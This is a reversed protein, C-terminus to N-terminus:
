AVLAAMSQRAYEFDAEASRADAAAAARGYRVRGWLDVEWTLTLVAGQLGSGDGSMKGGGRALLDVSPYLKAGALRAYLMAQEVRAAAVRLDANNTIAEAVAATLQDDQFTSLWNDTVIGAVNARTTWVTPVQVKPMAEGKIATADPPNKLVCSSSTLVTALISVAFGLRTPLGTRAHSCRVM